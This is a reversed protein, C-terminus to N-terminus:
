HQKEKHILEKTLASTLWKQAMQAMKLLKGSYKEQRGNTPWVFLGTGIEYLQNLWQQQTPSTTISFFCRLFMANLMFFVSKANLTVIFNFYHCSREKQTDLYFLNSFFFPFFIYPAYKPQQNSAPLDSLLIETLKLFSTSKFLMNILVNENVNVVLCYMFSNLDM